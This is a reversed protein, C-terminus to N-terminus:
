YYELLVDDIDGLDIPEYTSKNKGIVVRSQPKPTVPVYPTKDERAKKKARKAEEKDAKAEERAERKRKKNENELREALFHHAQLYVDCADERPKRKVMPLTEIYDAAANDKNERLIRPGAKLCEDKRVDGHFGKLGSKQSGSRPVWEIGKRVISASTPDLGCLMMESWADNDLLMAPAMRAKVIMKIMAYVTTMIPPKYDQADEGTGDAGQVMTVNPQKKKRWPNVAMISDVQREPVVPSPPEWVWSQDPHSFFTMLNDGLTDADQQNENGCINVVVLRELVYRDKNALRTVRAVALNATGIDIGIATDAVPGDDATLTRVYHAKIKM